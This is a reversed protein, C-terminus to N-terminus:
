LGLRKATGYGTATAIPQSGADPYGDNDADASPLYVKMTWTFTKETPSVFTFYDTGVLILAVRGGVLGYGIGTCESTNKGTVVEEAIFDSITDLGMSAAVDPALLQARYAAHLGSPDTASYTGLGRTSHDDTEVIWTGELKIRADPSGSWALSVAVAALVALLGGAQVLRSKFLRSMKMKNVKKASEKQNAEQELYHSPLGM